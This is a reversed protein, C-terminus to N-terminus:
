KELNGVFLYSFSKCMPGTRPRLAPKFAHWLSQWCGLWGQHFSCITWGNKCRERDRCAFLCVSWAVYICSFCYEAEVSEVFMSRWHWTSADSSRSESREHCRLRPRWRMLHDSWSRSVGEGGVVCESIYLPTSNATIVTNSCRLPGRWSYVVGIIIVVIISPMHCCVLDSTLLWQM